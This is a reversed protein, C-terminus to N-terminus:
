SRTRRRHARDVLGALRGDRVPTARRRQAAVLAAVKAHLAPSPQALPFARMYELKPRVAGNLAPPFRRQAYWFYLPSNLVALLFPDESPLIWVTTDPVLDGSEDLCCVPQTQIDQYLLRPARRAALPVVPDQLEYWKYRGPKRGTGPELADRFRALHARVRPLKALSTGHDVLLIYRDLEAPAPSRWRTLDRGKVFPRILEDARTGDALLEQRTAGDIVFARNLGTVV